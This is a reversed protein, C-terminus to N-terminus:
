LDKPALIKKFAKIMCNNCIAYGEMQFNWLGTVAGCHHCKANISVDGTISTPPHNFLWKINAIIRKLTKM